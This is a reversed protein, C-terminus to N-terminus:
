VRTEAYCTIFLCIHLPLGSVLLLSSPSTYALMLVPHLMPLVRFNEGPDTASQSTNVSQYPYEAGWVNKTPKQAELPAQHILSVHCASSPTAVVFEAAQMAFSGLATQSPSLTNYAICRSDSLIPLLSQVHRKHLSSTNHAICLTAPLVLM